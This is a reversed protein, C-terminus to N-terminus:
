VFEFALVVIGKFKKVKWDPYISQYERLVGKYSMGPVLKEIDEVNLMEAFSNYRRIATIIVNQSKNEWFFKVKDEVHINRIFPYNLRCELTKKGFCIMDYYKKKYRLDKM